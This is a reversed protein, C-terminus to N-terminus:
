PWLPVNTGSHGYSRRAPSTRPSCRPTLRQKIPDQSNNGLHASVGDRV